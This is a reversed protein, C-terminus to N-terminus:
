WGRRRSREELNRTKMKEKKKELKRLKRKEVKEPETVVEIKRKVRRAERKEKVGDRVISLHKVFETTGVKKQIADIIESSDATLAHYGETFERDTSFPISIAPDTFNHLPLLVISLLQLTKGASLYACVAGILHLASKIPVLSVHRTTLPGRRLISSAKELVYAIATTQEASKVVQTQNKAEEIVSEDSSSDTQSEDEWLMNTKDMVKSLFILNRVSQSAIDENVNLAKLLSVLGKTIEGAEAESLWLGGPGQLPFSMEETGSYTKALDTFYIGLLKAASFRVWMHPVSLCKRISVWLPGSTATLTSSPHLQTAKALAQLAFYLVEWDAVTPDAFMMKLIRAVRSCLLSVEKETNAKNDFYLIYLQLSARVLLPQDLQGLWTNLLALIAHIKKADAHAFSTKLLAGAMERCDSSEDNIMVMVLPVLFTDIIEQIMDEGVKLFLLHIVEMVSQRGAEHKYDLNKALFELQKLFRNKGQPYEMMFQFYIGRALERVGKAQNTIMILATSDFVEYVEAIVIKRTMIAKLFNYAIGQRGPEELDPILRKLLYAIDLDKVKTEKRERLIVSVLKLAAQAIESHTSVSAKLIKMCQAIYVTVNEDIEKLPVKIITILLRLACIQIEENSNVLADGIIPLFGSLNAPTRLADYKHLISRLVELSFRILKWEYSSTSGKNGYKKAGNINVIVRRNVYDESVGNNLSGHKYVERIIEHCFMLIRRDQVAENRLLGVGVRRLLEDIKKLTRLDLKDALLNQFPRVLEILYEINTTTSLVEMSDFSKSTKVEKMKKIYDDADKEMGTNGFIDDTIVSVIQPLCYDLDGPKFTPALGVLMAHMTFSLVHLQYGRSLASRLEKLIFEFYSPGTLLSIEILTKRTVDRSDQSRSRLINCVDTLVASLHVQVQDPPLLKILKVASVAIPVRLSVTSEDRNHLYDLLLPLFDKLIERALKEHKPISASLKSQSYDMTFAKGTDDIHLMNLNDDMLKPQAVRVIADIVLGLLRIMTKELGPKTRIYNGYRRFLARYQTWDLSLALAGITIVSEATLNHASDGDAREFIFHEVLPIFFHAVNVTSFATKHSESALRHLARLRRHQQIHLINSFFSADEDDNRLLVLMDKVDDWDPKYRILHAMVSLFEVRVLESSESVGDRLAPLLTFQLIEHTNSGEKVFNTSDIFRRLALSANSRIALEEADKMYFLMNFVLPRWQRASFSSFKTENIVSFTKLREGFDPEDINKRSFSNLSKCLNAVEQLEIDDSALDSLAELLNLRNSRDKFYGFLSSVTRFVKEWLDNRSSLSALPIFHKLILVLDSKSRPSVRYPQQGLLFIAIELLNYVQPSGEVLQAMRSVLGISSNLLDKHPNKQLLNGVRELIMTANPHLLRQTVLSRRKDYTHNANIFDSSECQDVLKKLFEEIIHLKVEDKASPIVLCDAVAEILNSNYDVLFLVTDISSAWTSFLILLGSISQTNESSFKELRPNILETYITPIYPTLTVVPCHRFSLNICQVGVHRIDKLLSIQLGNSHDLPSSLALKRAAWISCYLLADFFTQVFPALQNGLVELMDKIMNVCGLQQRPSINGKPPLDNLSSHHLLNLDDLPGLMIRIFERLENQSIRSLAGIITRRKSGQGKKGSAAGVRAIMKGYLLRLLVPILDQRHSYEIANDDHLFSVIEDRLRADDLLNTLNEQYFQLAEVKWNFIANLASTQIEVEGNCLLCRLADFVDSSQYLSKPNTFKSLISLMVKGDKRTLNSTTPEGNEENVGSSAINEHDLMLTPKERNVWRLFIPVFLRSNKEAVHPIGSLVRLAITSAGSTVQGLFQHDRDFKRKIIELPTNIETTCALIFIRVEMLNSCQFANLSQSSVEKIDQSIETATACTPEELMEFVLNSILVEGDKTNAVTKLANVSEEWVQSLKYSLTGFLFHIIARPIWGHHFKSMTYQSSLQRMNMSIVRASQLSLPSNEIKLATSFIEIDQSQSQAKTLLAKLIQLSFLRLSHHSSHLNETLINILPEVIEASVELHDAEVGILIAKLFTPMSGFYPSLGFVSKSLALKDVPFEAANKLIAELGAGLSFAVREDIKGHLKEGQRAMENLSALVQKRTSKSLSMSDMVELYANCIPILDGNTHATAFQKIIHEQWMLPCAMKDIQPEEILEPIALLLQLEHKEWSISVFRGGEWHSM